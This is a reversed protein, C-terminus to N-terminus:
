IKLKKNNTMNFSGETFQSAVFMTKPKILHKLAQYM